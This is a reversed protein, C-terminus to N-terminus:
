PKPFIFGIAEDSNIMKEGSHGSDRVIAYNKKNGYEPFLSMYGIFLLGRDLRDPGELEAACGEDLYKGDPNTDQGGFLFFIDRHFMNYLIKEEGTARAYTNLNELGKPYHNYKPCGSSDPLGYVHANLPRRGDPYMYSSPNMVIFRFVYNTLLEPAPTIASYRQVFQGGASHGVIVIRSINPFFGTGVVSMILSDMVEYSSMRDPQTRKDDSVSAFGDKWEAGKWYLFDNNLRYYDLEDENFYQPAIVLTQKRKRVSRVMDDAHDFAALGTRTVGHINILLTTVMTDRKDLPHSSAYRIAQTGGHKHMLFVNPCSPAINQCRGAFSLVILCTLLCLFTRM